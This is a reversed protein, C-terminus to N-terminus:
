PCLTKTKERTKIVMEESTKYQDALTDLEERGSFGYKAATDNIMKTLDQNRKEEEQPTLVKEGVNNKQRFCAIEASANIFREEVPAQFFCGTTVLSPVLLLMFIVKQRLMFSLNPNM